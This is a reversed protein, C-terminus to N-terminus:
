DLSSCTCLDQSLPQSAKSLKCTDLPCTILTPASIVALAVAHLVACSVSLPKSKSKAGFTTLTVQSLPRNYLLRNLQELSSLSPGILQLLLMHPSNGPRSPRPLISVLLSTINIASGPYDLQFSSLFSPVLSPWWAERPCRSSPLAEWQSLSCLILSCPLRLLVRGGSARDTFALFSLWLAPVPVCM